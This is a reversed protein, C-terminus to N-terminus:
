RKGSRLIYSMIHTHGAFSAIHLNSWGEKTRLRSDAGFQIMLKVLGLHGSMVFHQLPTRGEENYKNLDISHSHLQLIQNIEGPDGKEVANQFRSQIQTDFESRHTAKPVTTKLNPITRAYKFQLPENDNPQTFNRKRSSVSEVSSAGSVSSAVSMSESTLSESDVDSLTGPSPVPSGDSMSMASASASSGISSAPSLAEEDDEQVVVPKHEELCKLDTGLNDLAQVKQDDLRQLSAM